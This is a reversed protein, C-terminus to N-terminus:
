ARRRRLGLCLDPCDGSAGHGQFHAGAASTQGRREQFDAEVRCAHIVCAVLIGWNGWNHQEVQGRRFPLLSKGCEQLVRKKREHM